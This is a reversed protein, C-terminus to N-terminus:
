VTKLAALLQRLANDGPGSTTPLPLAIRTAHGAYKEKLRPFISDYTGVVCFADVMQDTILSAIEKWRGQLTLDHLRLTVDGWGHLDMVAKYTRTSAYFAIRRRTVELNQLVEEETAGTVIFGGGSIEVDKLSKGAKRAGAEIAPLAVEAIYKWTMFGHLLVGDAVEAALRAMYPNVAALYVPIRPHAIPGPNFEPTMLTFTYHQGRFNLPTGNQWCDWIARLAQVYERIRPGPASWAVSFRRENHGKVQTGLGLEFRGQSFAQLNWAEYAVVMPSRPFAVAIATGVRAQQTHEAALTATLFPDTTLESLTVGDYGLHEARRAEAPVEALTRGRLPAYVKM